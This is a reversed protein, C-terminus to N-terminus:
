YLSCQVWWWEVTTNSIPSPYFHQKDSEALEDLADTSSTDKELIASHEWFVKIKDWFNVAM